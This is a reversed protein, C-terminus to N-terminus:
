QWTRSVLRLVESQLVLFLNRIMLGSTFLQSCLQFCVPLLSVLFLHSVWLAPVLSTIVPSYISSWNDLPSCAFSWPNSMWSSHAQRGVWGWRWRWWVGLEGGGEVLGHGKLKRKFSKTVMFKSDVTVIGSSIPWNRWFTVNQWKPSSPWSNTLIVILQYNRYLLHTTRTHTHTRLSHHVLLSYTYLAACWPFVHLLTFSSKKRKCLMSIVDISKKPSFSFQLLYAFPMQFTRFLSIIYVKSTDLMSGAQFLMVACITDTSLHQIPSINLFLLIWLRRSLKDEGFYDNHLTWYRVWTRVSEKLRMPNHLFGATNLRQLTNTILSTLVLLVSKAIFGGTFYYTAAFGAVYLGVSLFYTTLIILWDIIQM